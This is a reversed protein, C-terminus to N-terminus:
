ALYSHNFRNPHHHGSFFQNMDVAFLAMENDVEASDAHIFHFGDVASIIFHKKDHSLVVGAPQFFPITRILKNKKLDWFSCFSDWHNAVALISNDANTSVSLLEKTFLHALEAPPKILTSKKNKLNLSVVAGDSVQKSNKVSERWGGTTMLIEKDEFITFHSIWVSPHTFKMDKFHEITMKDLDAKWVRQGGTVFLTNTGEVFHCDHLVHWKEPITIENVVRYTSPDVVVLLHEFAKESHIFKRASGVLYKNDKSLVMHGYLMYDDGGENIDDGNVFTRKKLDITCMYTGHRQVGTVTRSNRHPAISHIVAPTIISQLSKRELDALLIGSEVGHKFKRRYPTLLLGKGGEPTKLANLPTADAFSLSVLTGALASLFDRRTFGDM